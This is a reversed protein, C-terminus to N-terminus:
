DGVLIYVPAYVHTIQQTHKHKKQTHKHTHTHARTRTCIHQICINANVIFIGNSMHTRAHKLSLSLSLMYMYTMHIHIYQVLVVEIFVLVCMCQYVCVGRVGEKPRKEHRQGKSCVHGTDCGRVVCMCVCGRCRFSKSESSKAFQWHTALTNSIHAPPM